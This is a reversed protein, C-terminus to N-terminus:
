FFANESALQNTASFRVAEFGRCLDRWLDEPDELGVAVRLLGERLGLRRREEPALGHHTFFSPPQILTDTTGLSVAVTILKLGQLFLRVAEAGGALEFALIAGPGAMQRGVLGLPDGGPLGPYDVKLVEEQGALRSALVGASAQAREVRLPLTPLSRHLLYAAWPSLLGGTLIRVRRLGRADAESCAVIGALLDGHGGLFKTASHVVYRAGLDLPRQLVPTAFTSDVAVPVPAVAEVIGAIDVLEATPNVPTELLVLATDERIAEPIRDPRASTVEVGALGSALLLSTGGYIPEQVVVHRGRATTLLLAFLAAMGSGFAVSTEAHELAALAAEYRAVTPNHLRAYIPSEAQSEGAMWRELAAVSVELSGLPYTSSLDIPPAHVGLRSLEERGAHVALTAFSWTATSYHNKSMAM